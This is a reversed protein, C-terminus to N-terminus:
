TKGSVNKMDRSIVNIMVSSLVAILLLIMAYAQSLFFACILFGVLSIRFFEAHRYIDSDPPFMKKIKRFNNYTRYILFLFILLGLVGLEVAILLFSNHATKWAQSAWETHEDITDVYRGYASTFNNLGYGLPNDSILQISRKWVLIRGSGSDEGGMTNIRDWYSQPAFSILVVGLLVLIMLYKINFRSRNFLIFFTVAALGLFGGRSQTLVIGFLGFVAACIGLIRRAGSSHFSYMLAIPLITVLIMAMDNPDYMGLGIRGTGDGVGSRFVALSLSLMSLLLVWSISKLDEMTRILMASVIFLIFTKLYEGKLYAFSASKITAFPILAIMLALIMIELKVETFRIIGQNKQSRPMTFLGAFLGLASIDGLHFKALVPFIDQPRGIGVFIWFLLFKFAISSNRLNSTTHNPTTNHRNLMGNM